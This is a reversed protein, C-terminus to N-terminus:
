LVMVKRLLTQDGATLKVLYIGSAIHNGIPFSNHHAGSFQTANFMEQIKRGSVDMLDITVLEQNQLYYDLQIADVAPNPYLNMSSIIIPDNIGNPNEPVTLTTSHIVDDNATSDRNTFNLCSYFTIDGTGTAPAQWDFSWIATHNPADTGALTHTLYKHTPFTCFHTRPTDTILMTGALAGTSTQPSIEFGFRTRTPDTITITVTYTDLPVYGAVPINSTIVGTLPEVSGSHCTAQSCTGELNFPSGSVKAVAGSINSYARDNNVEEFIIFCIVSLAILQFARKM